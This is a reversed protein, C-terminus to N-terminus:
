VKSKLYSFGSKINLGDWKYALGALVRTSSHSSNFNVYKKFAQYGILQQKYASAYYMASM